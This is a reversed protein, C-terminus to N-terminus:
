VIGPLEPSLETKRISLWEMWAEATCDLYTMNKWPWYIIRLTRSRELIVSMENM